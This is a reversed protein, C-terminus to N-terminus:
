IGKFLTTKSNAVWKFGRIIISVEIKIEKQKTVIKFAFSFM